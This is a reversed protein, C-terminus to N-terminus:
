LGLMFRQTRQFSRRINDVKDSVWKGPESGGKLQELDGGACFARGAGTVILVRISDDAEVEELADGIEDQMVENLANRREPRNLTLTAIHEAPDKDLLIYKYGAM